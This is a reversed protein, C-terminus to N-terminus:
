CSHHPVIFQKATVRARPLTGTLLFFPPRKVPARDLATTRSDDALLGRSLSFPRSPKSQELEKVVFVVVVVRIITKDPCM